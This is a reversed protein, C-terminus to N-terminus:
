NNQKYNIFVQLYAEITSNQRKTQSNIQPHFATSLKQKIGFFNYLSSWFKSTFVLSHNSMISNPLSHHRVAAKIIVEVLGLIDITVKIPEYHIM